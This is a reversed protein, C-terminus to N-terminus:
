PTSSEVCFGSASTEVARRFTGEDLSMGFGPADPVRVCGAEIVYGSADLGDVDIHDWEACAFREIATALHCVARAGFANGYVHPASQVGCVDLDSGTRRWYTIGASPLDTQIIDVVGERAWQLLSPAADGEGDALLVPLGQRQMWARLHRYLVPDEHFPEELWYINCDATEALVWQVINCNWGNNADIMLRATPGIAQRVSRIIAIDRRTGELLPLHLAGRGVKLKFACHGRMQGARAEEAMLEAAEAEDDLHLDDFYLSTDYCPVRLPGQINLGARAILKYVPKSAQAGLVDWLAFEVPRADQTVGDELTILESRLRGLLEVAHQKTIRSHGFGSSGDDFTLRAFPRQVHQGHV